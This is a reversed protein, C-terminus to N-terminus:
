SREADSNRYGRNYKEALAVLNLPAHTPQTMFPFTSFVLQALEAPSKRAARDMVFDVIQSEEASLHCVNDAIALSKDRLSTFDPEDDLLASIVAQEGHSETPAPGFEEIQWTVDTLPEGREIASRWDVLYLILFLRGEDLSHPGHDFKCIYELVHQFSAM